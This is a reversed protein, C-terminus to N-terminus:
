RQLDFALRAECDTVFIVGSNILWSAFRNFKDMTVSDSMDCETLTTCLNYPHFYCGLLPFDGNKILSEMCDAFISKLTELNMEKHIHLQRGGDLNHNLDTGLQYVFLGDRSGIRKYDEECAYGPAYGMDLWDAFEHKLGPYGWRSTRFGSNVLLQVDCPLIEGNGASYATAPFGVEAMRRIARAYVQQRRAPDRSIHHVHVGLEGGGSLIKRSLEDFRNYYTIDAFFDIKAYWTLKGGLMDRIADILHESILEFHDTGNALHRVLFNGRSEWDCSFAIYQKM